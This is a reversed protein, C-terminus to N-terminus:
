ENLGGHLWLNPSRLPTHARAALDAMFALSRQRAARIQRRTARGPPGLVRKTAEVGREQFAVAFAMTNSPLDALSKLILKTKM